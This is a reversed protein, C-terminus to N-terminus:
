SPISNKEALVVGSCVLFTCCASVGPTHVGHLLVVVLFCNLIGM